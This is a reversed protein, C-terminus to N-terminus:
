THSSNLRTSKRDVLMSGTKQAAVQQVESLEIREGCLTDPFSRMMEWTAVSSVRELSPASWDVQRLREAQFPSSMASRLLQALRRQQLREVGLRDLRNERRLAAVLSSVFHLSSM